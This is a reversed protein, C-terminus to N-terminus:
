FNKLAGPIFANKIYTVQPAGGYPAYVLAFDFRISRFNLGSHARSFQDGITILNQEKKPPILVDLDRLNAKSARAKVEVVCLTDGELAIIDAELHGVRYNQALIVFGAQRMEDAVLVEEAYGSARQQM